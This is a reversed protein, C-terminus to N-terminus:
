VAFVRQHTNGRAVHDKGGGADGVTRHQEAYMDFGLAAQRFAHHHAGGGPRHGPDLAAVAAIMSASGSSRIAAVVKPTSVDKEPRLQVSRWASGSRARASARAVPMEGNSASRSVARPM